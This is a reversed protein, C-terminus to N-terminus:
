AVGSFLLDVLMAVVGSFLLFLFCACLIVWWFLCVSMLEDLVSCDLVICFSVICSCVICCM